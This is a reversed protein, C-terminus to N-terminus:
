VELQTALYCSIISKDHTIHSSTGSDLLWTEKDAKLAQLTIEEEEIASFSWEDIAENSQDTLGEKQGSKSKNRDSSEKKEKSQCETSIHGKKGCKFCKINPNRKKRFKGSNKAALATDENTSKIRRYQELIQAISKSSDGISTTDIGAIFNNWSEPLSTLLNIAFEADDLTQGLGILEECYTILMRIHDDIATGEKCAAWFLKRHVLVTSLAGQPELMQQITDWAGKSTTASAIYVIM